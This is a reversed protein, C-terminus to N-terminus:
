NGGFQLLVPYTRAFLMALQSYKQGCQLLVPYKTTFLMALQCYKQGCQLLVPYLPKKSYVAKGAALIKTRIAPVSPSSREQLCSQWSVTNEEPNCICQTFLNKATFLKALQCFKEGYQLLVQYLTKTTTFLMALQCYKQWSVNTTFLKALQCYKGGCQLLVPHLRQLGQLKAQLLNYVDPVM